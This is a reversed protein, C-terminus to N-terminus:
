KPAVKANAHALRAQAMKKRRGPTVGFHVHHHVLMAGGAVVGNTGWLSSLATGASHLLPAAWPAAPTLALGVADFLGTIGDQTQSMTCGALLLLAGLALYHKM